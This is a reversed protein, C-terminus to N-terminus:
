GREERYQFADYSDDFLQCDFLQDDIVTCACIPPEWFEMDDIVKEHAYFDVYDNEYTANASAPIWVTGEPQLLDSADGADMGDLEPSCHEELATTCGALWLVLCITAIKASRTM